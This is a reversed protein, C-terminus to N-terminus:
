RVDYRSLAVAALTFFVINYVILLTIGQWARIFSEAFTESKYVFVPLGTMDLEGDTVFWKDSQTAKSEDLWGILQHRYKRGQDIFNLYSNADTQTVIANSHTYLFAPSAMSLVKIFNQQRQFQSLEDMRIQWIRDAMDLVIPEIHQTRKHFYDIVKQVPKTVTIDGRSNYHMSEARGARYSEGYQDEFERVAAFRRNTEAVILQNWTESSPLPSLQVGLYNATYPHIIVFFIWFFLSFALATASRHSLASLLMGLTFFVSVYIFSILTFTLIRLWDSGTFQISPSLLMLLLAVGLGICLSFLLAIMAGIYKGILLCYRPVPNAVIQKLTGREKEGSFTGFAFLLALLSYVIQIIISLDLTQFLALYENDLANRTEIQPVSTRSVTLTTAFQNKLGKCFVSLVEPPYEIQPNVETYTAAKELEEKHEIMSLRYNDNETEYNKLLVFTYFGILVISLLTGFLFRFTLLHSHFEKKAIHWIM